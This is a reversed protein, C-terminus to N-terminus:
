ETTTTKTAVSFSGPEIGADRALRWALLQAPITAVAAFAADPLDGVEVVSAGAGGGESGVLLVAT